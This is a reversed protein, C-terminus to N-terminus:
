AQIHDREQRGGTGTGRSPSDRRTAWRRGARTRGPRPAWCGSWSTSGERLSRRGATSAQSQHFKKLGYMSASGTHENMYAAHVGYPHNRFAMGALCVIRAAEEDADHLTDRILQRLRKIRVRKVGGEGKRKREYGGYDRCKGIGEKGREKRYAKVHEDYRPKGDKRSRKRRRGPSM